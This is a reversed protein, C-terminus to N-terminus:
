NVGSFPIYYSLDPLPAAAPSVGGNPQLELKWDGGSWRVTATTGVLSAGDGTSSALQIVAVDPSYTVFRFGRFQAIEAPDLSDDSIQARAQVYADRGIGPLVQRDTVHRWGDGPAALYRTSIQTTALLAGVPSRQYGAAVAGDRVYPGAEASVPLAIRNVLEWQVPPATTPLAQDGQPPRDAPPAPAPPPTAPRQQPSPSTGTVAVLVTIVVLVGLFALAAIGSIRRWRRRPQQPSSTTSM